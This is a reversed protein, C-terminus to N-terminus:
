VHTDFWAKTSLIHGRNITENLFLIVKSKM